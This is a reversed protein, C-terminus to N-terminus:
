RSPREGRKEAVGVALTMALRRRADLVSALARDEVDPMEAAHRVHLLGLTENQAM